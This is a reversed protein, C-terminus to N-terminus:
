SNFRFLKSMLDNLRDKESGLLFFWSYVMFSILFVSLLLLKHAIDPLENTVLLVLFSMGPAAVIYLMAKWHGKGESPHKKYFFWFLLVNDIIIRAVWALAVGVIGLSPIFFVIMAIYFPLEFLHLKATYDPRGMAQIASFPIHSFSTILVGISLIQLVLTSQAAFESGLWLSLLPKSLIIITIILPTMVVMIYIIAREFLKVLKDAQSVSYVSFVPFLVGMLSGSFVWLRTVMDYPIAYYAVASMSIMAGVIFRDMKAMLPGVISSVTLWGGFNILKKFHGLNPFRPNRLGPISNLSFYLYVFFVLVRFAVLVSIIHPLSKTFLIVVMPAVFNSISAPIRIANVTGFRQQAELVGRAGAAGMVFPLSVSLLYFSVLTEKALSDPLKFVKNALMPTASAVLLGAVVGFCLLMFLSTWVLPLVEKNLGLALYEAVYKTTARGLGLDFMSFYGVITWALALIGFRETGLGSILFPIAVIAALLPLVQGSINFLVNRTLLRGSFNPKELSNNKAYLSM